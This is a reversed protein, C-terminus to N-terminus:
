GKAIADAIADIVAPDEGIAKALTIRPDRMASVLRPLDEKVHGGQGLFLPVVRITDVGGLAAVAEPLTPRMAELYAVRIVADPLRQSLARSIAEFPRAWEPDRSGHAFLIVAQKL